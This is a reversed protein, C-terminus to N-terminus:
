LNYENSIYSEKENIQAKKQVQNNNMQKINKTESPSIKKKAYLERRRENKM